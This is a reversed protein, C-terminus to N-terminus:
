GLIRCEPLNVLRPAAEAIILELPEADGFQGIRIESEIGHSLCLGQTFWVRRWAPKQKPPALGLVADQGAPFAFLPMGTWLDVGERQEDLSPVM